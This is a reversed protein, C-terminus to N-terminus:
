NVEKNGPFSLAFNEFEQHVIDINANASSCLYGIYHTIYTGNTLIELDIEYKKVLERKPSHRYWREFKKSRKNQKGDAYYCHYLLVANPKENYFDCIIVEITWLINPDIKPIHVGHNTFQFFGFGYASNLLFPYDAIHNTYENPNFYVTYEAEATEFTYYIEGNAEEEVYYDYGKRVESATTNNHDKQKGGKM